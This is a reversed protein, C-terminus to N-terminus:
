KEQQIVKQLNWVRQKVECTQHAAVELDWEEREENCRKNALSDVLDGDLDDEDDHSKRLM